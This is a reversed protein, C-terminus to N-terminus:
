LTPVSKQSERWARIIAVTAARDLEIAGITLAYERRKATLDYHPLKGPKNQFWKERMGIADAFDHLVELSTQPAVFLHCNPGLRWGNEVLADIYVPDHM